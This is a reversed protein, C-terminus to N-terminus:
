RNQVTRLLWCMIHNVHVVIFAFVNGPLSCVHTVVRHMKTRLRHPRDPPARHAQLARRLPADVDQQLEYLRLDVVHDLLGDNHDLVDEPAVGVPAGGSCPAWSQKQLLM